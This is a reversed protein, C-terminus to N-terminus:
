RPTYHFYCGRMTADPYIMRGAAMLAREFDSMIVPPNLNFTTKLYTFLSSYALRTRRTMLVFVCPFLQFYISKKISDCLLNQFVHLMMILSIVLTESKFIVIWSYLLFFGIIIDLYKFKDLLSM